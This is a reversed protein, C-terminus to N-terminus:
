VIGLADEAVAFAAGFPEAPAPSAHAVTGVATVHLTAVVVVAAGIAVVVDRRVHM